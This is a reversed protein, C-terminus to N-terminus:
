SVRINMVTNVFAQWNDRDQALHMWDVNEWWIERVDIKINDEWGREFKGLARKGESLYLTISKGELSMIVSIYSETPFVM